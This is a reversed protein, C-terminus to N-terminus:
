QCLNKAYLYIMTALRISFLLILKGSRSLM